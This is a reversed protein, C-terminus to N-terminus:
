KKLSKYILFSTVVGLTIFVILQMQKKRKEAELDLTNVPPTIYNSPTQANNNGLIGTVLNTINSFNNTLWGGFGGGSSTQEVSPAQTSVETLNLCATSLPVSVTALATTSDYITCMEIGAPGTEILGGMNICCSNANTLSDVFIDASGQQFITNSM